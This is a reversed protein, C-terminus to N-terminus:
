VKGLVFELVALIIGIFLTLILGSLKSNMAELREEVREIGIGLEKADEKRDNREQNILEKLDCKMNDRNKECESRSIYTSPIPAMKM